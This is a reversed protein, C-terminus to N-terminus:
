LMQLQWGIGVRPRSYITRKPADWKTSYQADCEAQIGRPGQNTSVSLSRPAMRPHLHPISQREQLAQLSIALCTSAKM